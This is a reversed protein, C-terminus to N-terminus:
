GRARRGGKSLNCYWCSARLNSRADTGGRVRPIVHDVTTARAGCYFCKYGAAELVENRLVRWARTSGAPRLMSVHKGDKDLYPNDAKEAPPADLVATGTGSDSNRQGIM